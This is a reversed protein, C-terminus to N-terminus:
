RIADPLRKAKEVAESKTRGHAALFLGFKGRYRRILDLDPIARNWVGKGTLAEEIKDLSNYEPAADFGMFGRTESMAKLHWDHKMCCHYIIGGYHTSLIENYPLFFEKWMPTSVTVMVDDGIGTGRPFWTWGLTDGPRGWSNHAAEMQIVNVEIIARTMLGLLHHVAEPCTIMGELIDEYHWVSSAISWPGANDSITIPIKGQTAENYFEIRDLITGLMGGRYLDPMEMALAEEPTHIAPDFHPQIGKQLVATSGFATAIAGTGFHVLNLTPFSQPGTSGAELMEIRRRIIRLQVELDYEPDEVMRKPEIILGDSEYEPDDWTLTVAPKKLEPDRLNWVDNQLLKAGAVLEHPIEPIEFKKM